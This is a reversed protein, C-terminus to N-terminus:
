VKMTQLDTRIRSEDRSSLETSYDETLASVGNRLLAYYVRGKNLADRKDKGNLAEEYLSKAKIM